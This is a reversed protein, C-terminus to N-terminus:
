DGARTSSQLTDITDRIDDVLETFAQERLM